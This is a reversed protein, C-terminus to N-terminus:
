PLWGPLAEVCMSEASTRITFDCLPDGTAPAGNVQDRATLLAPGSRATPGNVTVSVM